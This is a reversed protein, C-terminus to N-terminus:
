TRFVIALPFRCTTVRFTLDVIFEFANIIYYCVLWFELCVM